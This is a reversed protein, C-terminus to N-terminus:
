TLDTRCLASMFCLYRNCRRLNDGRSQAEPRAEAAADRGRRQHHTCHGATGEADHRRRCHGLATM